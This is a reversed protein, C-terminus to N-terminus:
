HSVAPSAPSPGAPCPLADRSSSSRQSPEFKMTLSELCRGRTWRATAGDRRRAPKRGRPARRLRRVPGRNREGMARHTGCALPTKCADVKCSQLEPRPAGSGGEHCRANSVTASPRRCPSPNSRKSRDDAHPIEQLPQEQDTHLAEGSAGNAAGCRHEKVSAQPRQEMPRLGSAAHLPSKGSGALAAGVYRARRCQRPVGGDTRGVSASASRQQPWRLASPTRTAPGPNRVEELSIRRAACARKASNFQLRPM